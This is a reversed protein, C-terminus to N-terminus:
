LRTYVHTFLFLVNKGLTQLTLILHNCQCVGQVSQATFCLMQASKLPTRLVKRSFHSYKCDSRHVLYGVREEHKSHLFTCVVVILYLEIFFFRM